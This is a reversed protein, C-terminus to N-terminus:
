NANQNMEFKKQFANIITFGRNCKSILQIDALDTDWINNIFLSHAKM